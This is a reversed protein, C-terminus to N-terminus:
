TRHGDHYGPGPPVCVEVGGLPGGDHPLLQLRVRRLPRAPHRDPGRRDGRRLDPRRHQARRRHDRGAPLSPRGPASASTPASRAPRSTCSCIGRSRCCSRTRTRRIWTSSCCTTPTAPAPPPTTVSTARAARGREQSGLVLINQAGYVTRGSLGGVKVKTINGDLQRYIAFAGIGAVVVVVALLSALIYGAKALRSQRRWRERARGQRVPRPAGRAADAETRIFHGALAARM